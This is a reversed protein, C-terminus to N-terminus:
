HYLVHLMAGALPFRAEQYKANGHLTSSQVYEDKKRHCWICLLQMNDLDFPDGGADMPIVHDITAYAMKLKM